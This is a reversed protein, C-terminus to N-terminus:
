FVGSVSRCPGIRAARQREQERALYETGDVARAISSLAFSVPLTSDGGLLPARCVPCGPPGTSRLSVEELCDSCFSHGCTSLTTPRHLLSLCVPCQLNEALARRLKKLEDPAGLAESPNGGRPQPESVSSAQPVAQPTGHPESAASGLRQGQPNGNGKLRLVAAGQHHLLPALAHCSLLASCSFLFITCLRAM